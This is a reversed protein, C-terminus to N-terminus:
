ILHRQQQLHAHGAAVLVVAVAVHGGVGTGGGVVVLDGLHPHQGLVQERLPLLRQRRRQLLGVDGRGSREGDGEEEEEEEVEQSQSTPQHHNSKAVTTFIRFQSVVVKTCVTHHRANRKETGARNLRWKNKYAIKCAM